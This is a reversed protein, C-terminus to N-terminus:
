IKINKFSIGPKGYLKNNSGEDIKLVYEPSLHIKEGPIGCEGNQVTYPRNLWVSDPTDILVDATKVDLFFLYFM